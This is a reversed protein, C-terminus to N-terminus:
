WGRLGVMEVTQGALAHTCDQLYQIHGNVIYFHCVRKEARVSVRISPHITPCSRGGLWDWVPDEGAVRVFHHEDCGKCYFQHHVNGNVHIEPSFKAM